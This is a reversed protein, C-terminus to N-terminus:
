MDYLTLRGSWHPHHRYAAALTSTLYFLNIPSPEFAVVSANALLLLLTCAGLNAGIELAWGGPAHLDVGRKTREHVVRDALKDCEGWRGERKIFDSITDPEAHLCMPGLDTRQWKCPRGMPHLLPEDGLQWMGISSASTATSVDHGRMSSCPWCALALVLPRVLRHM